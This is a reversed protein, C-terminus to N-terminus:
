SQARRDPVLAAVDGSFVLLLQRLFSRHGHGLRGTRSPDRRLETIRSLRGGQDPPDRRTAVLFAWPILWTGGVLGLVIFFIRWGVTGVLLAGVFTGLAPGMKSGADILANALALRHQPFHNV